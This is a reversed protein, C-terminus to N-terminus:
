QFLFNSFIINFIKMQSVSLGWFDFDFLSMLLLLQNEPYNKNLNQITIYLINEKGLLYPATIFEIKKKVVM